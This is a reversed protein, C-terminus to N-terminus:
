VAWISCNGVRDWALNQMTEGKCYARLARITGGHTVLLLREGVRDRRLSEVFDGARAHLERLSEGGPPLAEDDVVVRNEIGSMSAPLESLARGEFEGFSRERLETSTVIELGLAAGVIQATQLARALDSSIILDIPHERLSAAAASAQERGRHTLQAEDNQGQVLSSENWSSEGHRVLVLPRHTTANAPVRYM